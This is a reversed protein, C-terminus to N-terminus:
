TVAAVQPAAERLTPLNYAFKTATLAEDAPAWSSWVRKTGGTAAVVSGQEDRVITMGDVVVLDVHECAQGHTVENITLEVADILMSSGKVEIHREVGDLQVVLDYPKGLEKIDDDAAGLAKYHEIAVDLSRREIAARLLPDNARTTRGRPAGRALHSDTKLSRSM